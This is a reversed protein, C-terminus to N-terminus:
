EIQNTIDHSFIIYEDPYETDGKCKLSGRM